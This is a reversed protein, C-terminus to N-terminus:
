LFYGVLGCSPFHGCSKRLEERLSLFEDYNTRALMVEANTHNMAILYNGYIVPDPRVSAVYKLNVLFSRHPSFIYRSTQELMKKLPTSTEIVRGDSLYINVHKVKSLKEAYIILNESFTLDRWKHTVTIMNVQESVAANLLEDAKIRQIAKNVAIEFRPFTVPKALYDVSNLEYSLLLHEPNSSGTVFIMKPSIGKDLLSRYASIGDLKELGIDLLVIDPRYLECAEILRSGSSVMDLVTLGVKEAFHKLKNRPILDDEAIVVAYKREM